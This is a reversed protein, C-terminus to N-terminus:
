YSYEFVAGTWITQVEADIWTKFESFMILDEIQAIM